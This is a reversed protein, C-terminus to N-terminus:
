LIAVWFHAAMYFGGALVNGSRRMIWGLLVAQALQVIAPLWLVQLSGGSVLWVFPLCFLWYILATLLWGGTRGLWGTFRLQLFGRFVIEGALGLVLSLALYDFEAPSIGDMLSYVKGRLIITSFALAAGLMLGLKASPNSLGISLLPQRRILLLLGIPLLILLAWLFQGPLPAEGSPLTPLGLVLNAYIAAAILLMALIVSIIVERRQYKFTVPRATSRPNMTLLLTVAIAGAWESLYLIIENMSM